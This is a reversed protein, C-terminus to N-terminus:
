SLEEAGYMGRERGNAGSSPGWFGTIFLPGMVGSIYPSFCGTVGILEPSRYPNIIASWKYRVM